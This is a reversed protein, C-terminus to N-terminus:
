RVSLREPALFPDATFPDALSLGPPPPPLSLEALSLVDVLESEEDDLLVPDDLPPEVDPPEDLEPELLVGAAAADQGVM